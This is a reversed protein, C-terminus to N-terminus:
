HLEIFGSLPYPQIGSFDESRQYSSTAQASQSYSTAATTPVSATFSSAHLLRYFYFTSHIDESRTTKMYAGPQGLILAKYQQIALYGNGPLCDV